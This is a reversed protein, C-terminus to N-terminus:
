GASVLPVSQRPRLWLSSFQGDRDIEVIVGSFAQVASSPNAKGEIKVWGTKWDVYSPLYKASNIRVSVGRSLPHESVVFLAGAKAVPPTLTAAQWRTQPCMGWISLVKGSNDVELNLDDILVSTFGGKLPPEMDFSYEQSRYVLAREPVHEVGGAIEFKVAV